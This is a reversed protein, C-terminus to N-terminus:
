DESAPSNSEVLQRANQTQQDEWQRILAQMQETTKEEKPKDKEPEPAEDPLAKAAAAEELTEQSKQKQDLTAKLRQAELLRERAAKQDEEAKIFAQQRLIERREDNVELGTDDVVEGNEFVFIRPGGGSRYWAPPKGSLQTTGTDPDVWQYMRASMPYSWIILILAVIKKLM